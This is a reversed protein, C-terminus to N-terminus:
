IDEGEPSEGFADEPSFVYKKSEQDIEYLCLEKYFKIKDEELYDM